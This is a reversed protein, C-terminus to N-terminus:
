RPTPPAPTDDTNPVADRYAHWSAHGLVPGIVLLGLFGPLMAVIVLVTILGGWLLMVGPQTLCLRLSTLAATIADTDRDLIMPMSVVSISFILGAFLAGVSVYSIIFAINEPDLLKLLSGQFDPMGDFSVAFVIMSARGWIMEVVLLVAGFIAVSSLHAEFALLSRGLDPVEGLAMRRSADYLGLCLLPGMLLFGASLALTYAPAHQFVMLLLAGMVAFCGGFFLGIGPARAFDHWGAVLWHLPASWTLPRLTLDFPSLNHRGGGGDHSTQVEEHPSATGQLSPLEDHTIPKGMAHKYRGAGVLVM